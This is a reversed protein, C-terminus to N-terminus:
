DRRRAIHLVAGWHRRLRGDHRASLRRRIAGYLHRRKSDEMAIHGSFTDLLDIYSDADHVTEWDFHRVDVVTFRGSAAIEARHEELEGPRPWATGPPLAEGIEDYVNQIELFFPDGDDPFVHTASWFALCGGARLADWAKRYRLTPDIWHWATAALVLDFQGDEDPIWTEFSSQVVEVHAFPALNRRGAAALQEGLEICTIRFGRRALPLTAKGTGSGVELLRDGVALGTVAVLHDFLEDPYEPRARQYLASARDFTERLHLGDHGDAMTIVPHGVYGVRTRVRM